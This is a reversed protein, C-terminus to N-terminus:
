WNLLAQMAHLIGDETVPDTIYNAAAKAEPVANGMAVGIGAYSLMDLDNPGDGFAIMNERSIGLYEGLWQMASSKNVGTMTIECSHLDSPDFSSATIEFEPALQKELEPYTVPSYFIVAKEVGCYKDVDALIDEHIIRFSQLGREKEWEAARLPGYSADPSQLTYLAQCDELVTVLKQITEGTSLMRVREGHYRITAGAASVIGDFGIGLLEKSILCESRGSCLFLQHGEAKARRLAYQASEPLQGRFPILTGDIDFFMLKPSVSVPDTNQKRDTM